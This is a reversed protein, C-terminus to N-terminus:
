SRAFGSSPIDMKGRTQQLSFFSVTLSYITVKRSPHLIHVAWSVRVGGIMSVIKSCIVRLAESNSLRTAILLRKFSSLLRRPTAYVAM